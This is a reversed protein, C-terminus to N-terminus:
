AATRQQHLPPITGAGRLTAVVDTTFGLEDLIQETHEGIDPARRPAVKPEQDLHVPSDITRRSQGSGDDLPVESGGLVPPEVVPRFGTDPAAIGNSVATHPTLSTDVTRDM